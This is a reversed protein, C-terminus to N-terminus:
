AADYPDDRPSRYAPPYRFGMRNADSLMERAFAIVEEDGPHELLKEIVGVLAATEEGMLSPTGYYYDNDDASCCAALLRRLDEMEAKLRERDSVNSM